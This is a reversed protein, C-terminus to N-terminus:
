VEVMALNYTYNLFKIIHRLVDVKGVLDKQEEGEEDDCKNSADVCVGM